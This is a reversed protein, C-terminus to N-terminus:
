LGPPITVRLRTMAAKLRPAVAFKQQLIMQGAAMGRGLETLEAESFTLSTTRSRGRALAQVAAQLKGRRGM